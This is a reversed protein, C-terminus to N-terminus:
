HGRMVLVSCPAHRVLREAISGLLLRKLGTLGHTGLVMLDVEHDSAWDAMAAVVSKNRLLKTAGALGDLHEHRLKELEDELLRGFRGDESGPGQLLEVPPFIDYVHMLTVGASFTRALSGAAKTAPLSEDSFDTGVLLHTALVMPERQAPHAVLVSCPAHRVVRETTSGILTESLSHEGHRGAVILDVGTKRAQDCIAFAAHAHELAVIDVKRDAFREDRLVRLFERRENLTANTDGESPPVVNMLTIPCDLSHVLDQAAGAALLASKSFDTALLIHKFVTAEQASVWGM